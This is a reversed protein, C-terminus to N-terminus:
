LYKLTDKIMSVKGLTSQIEFMEDISIDQKNDSCKHVIIEKEKLEKITDDVSNLIDMFIKSTKDLKSDFLKQRTEELYNIEKTIFDLSINM